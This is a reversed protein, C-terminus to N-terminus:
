PTFCHFGPNSRFYQGDRQAQYQEAAAKQMREDVGEGLAGAFIRLHDGTRSARFLSLRCYEMLRM